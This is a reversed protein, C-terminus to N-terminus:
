LLKRRLNFERRNMRGSDTEHDYGLLHLSGHIILLQIEEELSHGEKRAQRGAMETSIIIEGLQPTLDGRFSGGHIASRGNPFSLVDTPRDKSRFRRNLRRITQDSVLTVSIDNEHRRIARILRQLFTRIRRLDVSERRQRNFILM